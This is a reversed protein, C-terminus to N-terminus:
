LFRDKQPFLVAYIRRYLFGILRVPFQVILVLIWAPDQRVTSASLQLSIRFNKRRLNSVLLDMLLSDRWQLFKKAARPNKLDAHIYKEALRLMDRLYGEQRALDSSGTLSAHHRRYHYFFREIPYIAINNLWCRIQFDRDAAIPFALDFLGVKEFVERRFFWANMIPVGLMLRYEINEPTVASFFELILRGQPRDEFQTALGCVVDVEPHSQFVREVEAFIGPQYIDDSNLLGIIEGRARLIGKNIADYLGKDKESAVQMRPYKSLLALTGDTSGGDAIIHEYNPFDQALVSEVADCILDVRNLCATIISIKPSTM